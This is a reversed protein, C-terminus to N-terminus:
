DGYENAIVFLLYELLASKKIPTGDNESDHTDCWVEVYDETIAASIVIRHGGDIFLDINYYEHHLKFHDRIRYFWMDHAACLADLVVLVQSM